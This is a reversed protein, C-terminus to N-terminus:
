TQQTNKIKNLLDQISSKQETDSHAPTSKVSSKNAPLKNSSLKSTNGKTKDNNKKTKGTNKIAQKNNKSSKQKKEEKTLPKISKARKNYDDKVDQDADKWLSAIIRLMDKTPMGENESKISPFMERAFLNYGSINNNIKRSKNSQASLENNLDLIIKLDEENLDLQSLITKLRSNILLEIEKHLKKYPM